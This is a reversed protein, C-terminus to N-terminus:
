PQHHQMRIIALGGAIAACVLNTARNGTSLVGDDSHGTPTNGARREAVRQLLTAQGGLKPGHRRAGKKRRKSKLEGRGVSM